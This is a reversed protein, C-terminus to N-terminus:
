RSKPPLAKTPPAGLRLARMVSSLSHGSYSQVIRSCVVAQRSSDPMGGLSRFAEVIADDLSGPDDLQELAKIIEEASPAMDASSFRQLLNYLTAYALKERTNM